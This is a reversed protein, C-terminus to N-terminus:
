RNLPGSWCFFLMPALAVVAVEGGLLQVQFDGGLSSDFDRRMACLTAAGKSPSVPAAHLKLRLHRDANVSQLDATVLRALEETDGIDYAGEDLRRRLLAALARSDRPFRLARDAVQATEDTVAAPVVKAPTTMAPLLASGKYLRWPAQLSETHTIQRATRRRRIDQLDTHKPLERREGMGPSLPQEEGQTM